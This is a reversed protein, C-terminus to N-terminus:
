LEYERRFVMPGKESNFKLSLTVAKVGTDYVCKGSSCTGLVIDDREIEREGDLKITGLVGRPLGEDTQYTLEYEISGVGKPIGSIKLKVVRNNNIASLDIKVDDTVTPLAVSPTPVSEAVPETKKFLFSKSIVIILLVALIGVTIIIFKKM